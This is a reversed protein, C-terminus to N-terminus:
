IRARAVPRDFDQGDGVAFVDLPGGSQDLLASGVEVSTAPAVAASVDLHNWVVAVLSGTHREVVDGICDDFADWNAGYHDPFGFATALESHAASRSTMARGDLDVRHYGHRHLFTGLLDRASLHVRFLPGSRLWPLESRVSPRGPAM